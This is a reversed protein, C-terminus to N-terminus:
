PFLLGPAPPDAPDASHPDVQFASARDRIAPRSPPELGRGTQRLAAARRRPTTDLAQAIAEWSWGSERLYEVADRRAVELPSKFTELTQLVDAPHVKTADDLARLLIKFADEWVTPPSEQMQM